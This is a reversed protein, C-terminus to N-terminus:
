KQFIKNLWYEQTLAPAKQFSWDKWKNSFEQLMNLSLDQWNNLELVPLNNKVLVSTTCETRLVVPFSGLYLAEWIRHSQGVWKPPQSDLGGPCLVFKYESVVNFYQDRQFYTNHGNYANPPNFIDCFDWKAALKTLAIRSSGREAFAAILLKSKLCNAYKLIPLINLYLGWPAFNFKPHFNLRGCPSWYSIIKSSNLHGPKTHDFWDSQELIVVHVPKLYPLIATFFNKMVAKYSGEKGKGVFVIDGENVKELDLWRWSASYQKNYTDDLNQFCEYCWTNPNTPLKTQIIYSTEFALESGETFDITAIHPLHQLSVAAVIKGLLENWMIPYNQDNREQAARASVSTLVRLQNYVRDLIQHQREHIQQFLLNQKRCVFFANTMIKNWYNPISNSPWAVQWKQHIPSVVWIQPNMNLIKWAQGWDGTAKLAKLQTQNKIDCYGGGFHLLFYIRFYDSKHVASLYQVGPHVPWKLYQGINASTVLEYKVGLNNMSQLAHKRSSFAFGSTQANELTENGFWFVWIKFPPAEEAYNM